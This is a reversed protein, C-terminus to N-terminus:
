EKRKLEPVAAAIAREVEDALITLHEALKTFLDRKKPETALDRILACEAADTRLKELQAQM